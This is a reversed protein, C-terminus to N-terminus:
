PIPAVTMTNIINVDSVEIRFTGKTKANQNVIIIVGFASISVAM